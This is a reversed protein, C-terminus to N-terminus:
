WERWEETIDEESEPGAISAAEVIFEYLEKEKWLICLPIFLFIKGFTTIDVNPLVKM